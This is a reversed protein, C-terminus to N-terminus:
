SNTILKGTGVPKLTRSEVRLRVDSVIVGAICARKPGDARGSDRSDFLM